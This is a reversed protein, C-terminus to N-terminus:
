VPLKVSKENRTLCSKTYKIRNATLRKIRAKKKKKRREELIKEALGNHKQEPTVYGIGGHLKETNYEKFYNGFYCKGEEVDVFNGPYEPNGKIISFSSEVFPNDNPTTSM